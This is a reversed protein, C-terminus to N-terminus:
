SGKWALWAVGIVIGLSLLWMVAIAPVKVWRREYARIDIEGTAVRYTM